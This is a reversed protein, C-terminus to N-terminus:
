NVTTVQKYDYYVGMRLQLRCGNTQHQHIYTIDVGTDANCVWEM